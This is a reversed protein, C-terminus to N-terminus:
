KVSVFYFCKFVPSSGETITWFFKEYGTYSFVSVKPVSFKFHQSYEVEAETPSRTQIVFINYEGSKKIYDGEIKFGLMINENFEELFKSSPEVPESSGETDFDNWLNKNTCSMLIADVDPDIKEKEKSLNLSIKVLESYKSLSSSADKMSKSDHYKYKELKMENLNIVKKYILDKCTILLAIQDQILKVKKEDAEYIGTNGESLQCCIKQMEHKYFFEKNQDFLFDIVQELMPVMILLESTKLSCQDGVEVSNKTNYFVDINEVSLISKGKDSQSLSTPEEKTLEELQAGQSLTSSLLLSAALNIIKM